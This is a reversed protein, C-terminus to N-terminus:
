MAWITVILKGPAQVGARVIRLDDILNDDRWVGAHTLSDLVGKSLNDLDRRRRDPMFADIRVGVPYCIEVIGKGVAQAVDERYERGQQSILVRTQGKVRVSRWYHNVSPPYPLEIKVM